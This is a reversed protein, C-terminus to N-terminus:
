EGASLAGVMARRRDSHVRRRRLHGSFALRSPPPAAADSHRPSTPRDPTRRPPRHTDAPGPFCSRGGEIHQYVIRCEWSCTSSKRPGKLSAWKSRVKFVLKTHTSEYPLPPLNGWIFGPCHSKHHSARNRPKESVLVQEVIEIVLPPMWAKTRESAVWRISLPWENHIRDRRPGHHVGV